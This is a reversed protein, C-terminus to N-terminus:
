ELSYGRGRTTKFFSHSSAQRNKLNVRASGVAKNDSHSKNDNSTKIHTRAKSILKSLNNDKNSGMAKKFNVKIMADSFAKRLRNMQADIARDAIKEGWIRHMIEERSFIKKPNKIFMNVLEFGKPGVNVLEGKFSVTYNSRDVKIDDHAVLNEELEPKSKRILEKVNRMLEVSQIPRSLIHVDFKTNHEKYNEKSETSEIVFLAPISQLKDIKSLQVLIAKGVQDKLRSSIIIINPPRNEINKISTEDVSEVHAIDFWLGGRSTHLNQMISNEAGVDSSEIVLIKPPLKSIPFESM